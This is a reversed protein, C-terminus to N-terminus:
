IIAPIAYPVGTEHKIRDWAALVRITELGVAIAREDAQPDWRNNVKDLGNVNVVGCRHGYIASQVMLVAAEGTGDIVGAELMEELVPETRRTLFRRHGDTTRPGLSAMDNIVGFKYPLKLHEAAAIAAQIVEFHALAPFEARVYDHSTGDLRVAGKAIVLEGFALEDRIPSTVGVRLFTSGGLRSLEEIATSVSTGGIGTSCASIPIGRYSGTMVLWEYHDAVLRANDWHAAFRRVRDKNGPVLVYPAIDGPKAEGGFNQHVYERDESALTPM